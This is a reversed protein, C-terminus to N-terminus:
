WRATTTRATGASTSTTTRACARRRAALASRATRHLRTVFFEPDIVVNGHELASRIWAADADLVLGRSTVRMPVAHTDSEDGAPYAVAPSITFRVDGHGDVIQIAGNAARRSTTGQGLDLPLTFSKPAHDGTLTITQELGDSNSAYSLTTDPLAGRYSAQAGDVSATGSAGALGLGVTADGNAVRVLGDAGNPITLAFRNARNRFSSGSAALTNDIARWHGHAVPLQGVALLRPHRFNRGEPRVHQEDGHDRRRDAHRGASEVARRPGHAGEKVLPTTTRRPLGAAWRAAKARRGTGPSRGCGIHALTCHLRRAVGHCRRLWCRCWLSSRWRAFAILVCRFSQPVCCRLWGVAPLDWELEGSFRCPSGLRPWCQRGLALGRSKSLVRLVELGHCCIETTACNASCLRGSISIAQPLRRDCRRHERCVVEPSTVQRVSVPREECHDRHLGSQGGITM